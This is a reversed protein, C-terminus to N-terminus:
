KWEGINGTLLDDALIAFNKWIPWKTKEVSITKSVNWQTWAPQRTKQILWWFIEQKNDNNEIIHQFQHM